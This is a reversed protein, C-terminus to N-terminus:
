HLEYNGLIDYIKNSFVQQSNVGPHRHDLANDIKLLRISLLNDIEIPIKHGPSIDINYFKVNKNKLYLGGHQMILYDKIYADYGDM